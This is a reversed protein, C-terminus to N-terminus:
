LCIFDKTFVKTSQHRVGTYKRIALYLWISIVLYIASRYTTLTQRSQQYTASDKAHREYFM